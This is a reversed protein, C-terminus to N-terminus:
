GKIFNKELAIEKNLVVINMHWIRMEARLYLRLADQLSVCHARSLKNVILILKIAPKQNLAARLPDPFTPETYPLAQTLLAYCVELSHVFKKGISKVFEHMHEGDEEDPASTKAEVFIVDQRPGMTIFEVTSVGRTNVKRYTDSKEILFTKAEPLHFLMGSERIKLM